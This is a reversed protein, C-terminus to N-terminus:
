KDYLGSASVTCNVGECTEGKWLIDNVVISVGIMDAGNTGIVAIFLYLYMKLFM